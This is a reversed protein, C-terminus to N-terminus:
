QIMSRFHVQLLSPGSPSNCHAAELLVVEGAQLDVLRSKQYDYKTWEDPGGTWSTANIIYASTGQLVFLPPLSVPTAAKTLFLTVAGMCFWQCLDPSLPTHMELAPSM